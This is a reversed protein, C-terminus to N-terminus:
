FKMGYAVGLSDQHMRNTIGNSSSAIDNTFAHMYAFSLESKNDLAWTGGITLHDQVTAPALVNFFTDSPNYPADGHNWGARLTLNKTAEFSMGIKYVTQNQWGFGAGNDAGLLGGQSGTNSISKIDGYMIRVFDVAVTLAPSVKFAAGVGYNAPIDFDGQEAFMGKYKDFKSMYTRTQYTAGVTMDQNLKGTWGIRAGFGYSNDYGNDTVNGVSSTQSAVNFNSLGFSKFRQYALNLAIGISHDNNLKMSFTPSIFLQSLDVGNKTGAAGMALQANVGGAVTNWNSYNSNMGGNGFVAVGLSMNNNLMKNYGFEPIFFNSDNNGDVLNGGVVAHRVPKFWDLGFDLRDGVLVMNAPNTAAALADQGFAIGAGGMGKAKIGYGHSFYGNTAFAAGSVAVLGAAALMGYLSKLKM